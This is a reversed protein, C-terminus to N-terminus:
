SRPMGAEELGHVYRPARRVLPFVEALRATSVDTWRARMADVHREADARRRLHGLSTLLPPYAAVLNPNGELVAAARAAAVDYRGLAAATNAAIVGVLPGYPGEHTAGHLRDARMAHSGAAAFDGVYSRHAASLSWAMASSPDLDLAREICEIADGARNKLFALAHGRVAWAWSDEPALETARSAHFWAREQAERRDGAGGQGVRFIEAFALHAHGHASGRDREVARLLLAQGRALATPTLLRLSTVARHILATSAEADDGGCALARATREATLWTDFRVDCGELGDGLSVATDSTLAGPDLADIRCQEARLAVHERDIELVSAAGLAARADHLCQRLSLQQQSRARDSWLLDGLEDRRARLGPQLAVYALMARTKKFRLPLEGGAPTSVRFHGLLQLAIPPPNPVDLSM